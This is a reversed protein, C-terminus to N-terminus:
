LSATNAVENWVRWVNKYCIKEIDERSYGRKLLEYILNPYNSVDKLGTPLSDGVGDYDSGIGVHDVGALGVVHDIHDAVKEVTSYQKPHEQTYAEIITTAAADARTLKKSALLSDLTSNTAKNLTVVEGDLFSSGFNIQIVGEKEGLLKIMEDSMNREFGPTFKRCSSHSAVVPATSLEMVQYFTSDSIHSVDIMVGVENMRQVVQKGFDSLGNWTRTTDYSSDCILNDKSHTLTVYRIGREHFYNVNDLNDGIPAGNEMGMPLSIKGEEFNKEVESPTNALAFKDPFSKTIDIVSNILSDALEKAGGTKQYRAPIYISMFPADLGGERARVFDFEGDETRKSVDPMPEGENYFHRLRYPVDIHGDTIIVEKAIESALVKMEAETLPTEEETSTDTQICSFSFSALLFFFLTNKM